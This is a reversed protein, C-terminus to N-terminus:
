PIASDFYLCFEITIKKRNKANFESQKGILKQEPSANSLLQRLHKSYMSLILRHAPVVNGNAAVLDVDFKPNERVIKVLKNNLLDSLYRNNFKVSTTM